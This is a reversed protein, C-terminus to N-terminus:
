ALSPRMASRPRPSADSIPTHPRIFRWAGHDKEGYRCKGNDRFRKITVRPKAMPLGSNDILM